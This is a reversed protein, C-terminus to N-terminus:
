QVPDSECPQGQTIAQIRNLLLEVNEEISRNELRFGRTEKLNRFWTMQHKAYHRTRLQTQEIAQALTLTGAELAFAEAYGVAQLATHSLPRPLAAAEQALGQAFMLEVRQNIRHYLEPRDRVLAIVPVHAPAPQSHRQRLHSPRQGTSKYIELSRVIRRLDTSAIKAAAEPDVEALRAYLTEVGHTEAEEHLQARYADDPAPLESLGRLCAKLYLPSGGTFLATTGRRAIDAVARAALILYQDLNSVEQPSITDLLHHPIRNRDEPSPKATGIDMGKYLTMADLAIIEANLREALLLSIESKGVATPGTLYLTNLFPASIDPM